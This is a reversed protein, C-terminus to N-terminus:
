GRPSPLPPPAVRPTIQALSKALDKQEQATELDYDAQLRMWIEPSNGLYTALRLATDPTIRRRGLIVDNLRSAHVGIEKALATVSMELPELVDMKIIEGPHMPPIKKPM